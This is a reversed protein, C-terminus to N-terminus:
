SPDVASLSKSVTRALIISGTVVVVAGVTTAIWVLARRQPDAPPLELVSGLGISLGFTVATGVVFPLSWAVGATALTDTPQLDTTLRVYAGVATLPLFVVALLLVALPPAEDYLAAVGFGAVVIVVGLVAVSLFTISRPDRDTRRRSAFVGVLCLALLAALGLLVALLTLGAFGAGLGDSM